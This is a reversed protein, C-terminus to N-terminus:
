IHKETSLTLQYIDLLQDVRKEIDFKRRVAEVSNRKIQNRLPDNKILTHLADIVQDPHGPEVLLGTVQDHILDPLGGVRTAVVPLGCAMAEIVAMPMGEYYSPYVFVDARSFVDLKESGFVPPLIDVHSKLDDAQVKEQLRKLEGPMLESGVLVFHLDDKAVKALKVANLLDFSGKAKGLYGLYLVQLTGTQEKRLHKEAVDRFFSLNIANPLEFVKCEPATALLENWEKSVIIVGQVMWIVLRFYQQWWEPRESYLMAYSCHPHLLVKCGFLRAIIICVSNKLFSFGFATGIHVIQPHGKLIALLFRWCDSFALIINSVSLRGSTEFKRKQSSTQVFTLDIRQPLSSSM